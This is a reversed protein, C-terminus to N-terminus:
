CRKGDAIPIGLEAGTWAQRAAAVALKSARGLARGVDVPEQIQCAITRTLESTDLGVVPSGGSHGHCLSHWFRREDCGISSMVGIGTIVVDEAM